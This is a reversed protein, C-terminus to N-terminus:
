LGDLVNYQVEMHLINVYVSIYCALEIITNNYDHNSESKVLNVTALQDPSYTAYWHEWIDFVNMM